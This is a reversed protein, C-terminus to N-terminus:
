GLLYKVADTASYSENEGRMIRRAFGLDDGLTIFLPEPYGNREQGLGVNALLANCLCKASQAKDPAGGKKAYLDIPEAPCRFRVNGEGDMFIERLYGLDCVRERRRYIEIDSLTGSVQAVKFPFGTPSAIPDTFIRLEGRYALRRLERKIDSTFGSEESLAFLSGVQVGNAGLEIAQRLREPNSWSGGLYFPKGLDRIAAYDINDKPGYVPQGLEDLSLKGRPPANHGGAVKEEVIFGDVGANRALM